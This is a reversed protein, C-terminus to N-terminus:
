PVLMGSRCSRRAGKADNEGEAQGGTWRDTQGLRQALVADEEAQLKAALAADAASTQCAFLFFFYYVCMSSHHILLVM